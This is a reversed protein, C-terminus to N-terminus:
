SRIGITYLPMKINQPIHSKHKSFMLKNQGKIEFLGRLAIKKRNFVM